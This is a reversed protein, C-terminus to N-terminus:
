ANQKNLPLALWFTSGQGVESKFWFRGNHQRVIEKCIYLGLGLGEVQKNENTRVRYYRDFLQEQADAAIGFGFDQVWIFVEDNNELRLGVRIPSENPSYKVANSILNNLVQELRAEDGLGIIQAEKDEIDLFLSHNKIIIRQQEVMRSVFAVFDISTTFNLEFRNNQIRSFDFLQGVMSNMRDAQEIIYTLYQIQKQLLAEQDAMVKVKTLGRKVLQSYGRVTALPNRLEHSVM